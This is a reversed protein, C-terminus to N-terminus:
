STKRYDASMNVIRRAELYKRTKMDASWHPGTCEVGYMLSLSKHESPPELSPM